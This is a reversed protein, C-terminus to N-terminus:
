GTGKRDGSGIVGFLLLLGIIVLALPWGYAFVFDVAASGRPMGALILIGGPLLPWWPTRRERIMAIVWIMLFGAGLGIREFNDFGFLQGEGLTGVGLGLLISGPVLLAYNGVYLYGGVLLAGSVLLIFLQQSENVFQLAFFILGLSILVSGALLRGRHTQKMIRLQVLSPRGGRHKVKM